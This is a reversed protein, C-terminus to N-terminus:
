GPLRPPPCTATEDDTACARMALPYTARFRRGAVRYEIGIGDFEYTGEDSVRLELLVQVDGSGGELTFGALARLRDMAIGPPPFREYSFWLGGGTASIPLVYANLVTLGGSAEELRIRELTLAGAAERSQLQIGGYTFSAGVTVPFGVANPVIQEALPGGESPATTLAVVGVALLAAAFPLVTWRRM